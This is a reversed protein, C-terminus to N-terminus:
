MSPFHVSPSLNTFDCSIVEHIHIIYLYKGFCVPSSTVFLLFICDTYLFPNQWQFSYWSSWSFLYFSFFISTISCGFWSLMLLHNSLLFILLEQFYQFHVGHFLLLHFFILFSYNRLVLFTKPILVRYCSDWWLNFFVRFLGCQLTSVVMRLIFWLFVWVFSSCFWFASSLSFAKCRLSSMPLSYAGLFSPLFLSVLM